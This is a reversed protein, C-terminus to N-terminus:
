QFIKFKENGTGIEISKYGLTQQLHEVILLKTKNKTNQAIAARVCGTLIGSFQILESSMTNVAEMETSKISETFKDKFFVSPGFASQSKVIFKPNTASIQENLSKYFDIKKLSKKGFSISTENINQDEAPTETKLVKACFRMAPNKAFSTILQKVIEQKNEDNSRYTLKATYKLSARYQKIQAEITEIQLADVLLYGLVFLNDQGYLGSETAFITEKGETLLHLDSDITTTATSSPVLILSSATALLSGQIFDRRKM